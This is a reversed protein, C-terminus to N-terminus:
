RQTKRFVVRLKKAILLIVRYAVCLLEVLLEQQWGDVHPRSLEQLASTQAAETDFAQRTLACSEVASITSFLIWQGPARVDEQRLAFWQRKRRFGVKGIEILGGLLRRSKVVVAVTM